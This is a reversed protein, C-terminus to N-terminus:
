NHFMDIVGRREWGVRGAGKVTSTQETTGVVLKNKGDGFTHFGPFAPPFSDLMGKHLELFDSQKLCPM